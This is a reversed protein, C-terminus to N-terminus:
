SEVPQRKRLVLILGTGIALLGVAAIALGTGASGGNASINQLTIATPDAVDLQVEINGFTYHNTATGTEESFDNISTRPATFVSNSGYRMHYPSGSPRPLDGWNAPQAIHGALAMLVQSGDAVFCYELSQAGATGDTALDGFQGTNAYILGNPAWDGGKNVFNAGWLNITGAQQSGSFSQGQMTLGLVPDSPIAKKETPTLRQGDFTTDLTPDAATMTKSYTSVYDIAPRGNQAVDWGFAGCYTAGTVLGNFVFRYAIFQGIQYTSKQSNSNGNVWGVSGGPDTSCQGTSDPNGNACQDLRVQPAAYAVGVAFYLLGIALLPIGLALLIPGLRKKNM